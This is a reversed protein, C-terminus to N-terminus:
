PVIPRSGAAPHYQYAGSGAIPGRVAIMPPRRAPMTTPTANSTASTANRGAPGTSTEGGGWAPTAVGEGDSPREAGGADAPGVPAPRRSRWGAAAGIDSATM